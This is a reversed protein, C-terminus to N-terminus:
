DLTRRFRILALGAFACVFIALAVLESRLDSFTSGKLMIGRVVRLFHTLPLAEGLIQAWGPMGGFPFMFGSLLISPLFFFFTLQMAQMQTRALTSFTYGLLVLAIIYIVLAALLLSLSGVFPVDFLLKAFTLIVIVQVAGIGFYPTIKGAMLEVPQLPMALLNEMTGREVERTLAMATMMVMTMQLIVGLLGPVINYQTVAEPNYRRHVVISLERESERLAEAERGLERQLARRAIQDVVGVAGSAAAPDSADAELLIQPRDGRQARRGIDSPITLLFTIDGRAMLAEAEAASSPLHTIRYYGTNELHSIIARSFRDRSLDLVGTPLDKPDTSIALGFLVLQMVPVGLMMAFTLRDRRIQIFEKALVALIRSLSISLSM